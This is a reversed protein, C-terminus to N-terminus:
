LGGRVNQALRKTALKQESALVARRCAIAAEITRRHEGDPMTEAVARRYRLMALERDDKM